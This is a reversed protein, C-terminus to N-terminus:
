KKGKRKQKTKMRDAFMREARRCIADDPVVNPAKAVIDDFHPNNKVWTQYSVVTAWVGIWEHQYYAVPYLFGLHSMAFQWRYRYTHESPGENTATVTVAIRPKVTRSNVPKYWSFGVPEKSGSPQGYSLDPVLICFGFEMCDFALQDTDRKAAIALLKKEIQKRFLLDVHSIEYEIAQM